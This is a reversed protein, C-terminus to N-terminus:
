RRRRAVLAAGVLAVVVLGWPFPVAPAPAGYGEFDGPSPVGYTPATAPPTAQVVVSDSAVPLVPRAAADRALGSPAKFTLGLHRLPEATVELRGGAGSANLRVSFSAGAPLEVGAADTLRGDLSAAVTLAVPAPGDNHVRATAAGVDPRVDTVRVRPEAESVADAEFRLARTVEDGEATRLRLVRVEGDRPTTFTLNGAADTVGLTAGDLSVRVDAQPAGEASLAQLTFAREDQLAFALALDAHVAVQRHLRGVQVDVTGPALPPLELAYADGSRALPVPAGGVRVDPLAGEHGPLSLTLTAPTGEPLHLPALALLPARVEFGQALPVEVTSGEPTFRLAYHDPALADLDLTPLTAAGDVVSLAVPNAGGNLLLRGQAPAGDRLVTFRPAASLGATASLPGSAEIRPLHVPALADRNDDGAATRVYVLWDGAPVPVGSDLRVGGGTPTVQLPRLLPVDEGAALRRGEEPTLLWATAGAADGPFAVDLSLPAGGAPPATRVSLPVAHDPGPDLLAVAAFSGLLLAAAALGAMVLYFRTKGPSVLRGGRPTLEYYVWLREDEHRRVLGAAVLKQLHELVTAKKLDLQSALETLTMRRKGLLRLIDRRSDAALVKLMEADLPFEEGPPAGGAAAM